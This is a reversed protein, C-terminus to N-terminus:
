QNMTFSPSTLLSWVIDEAVARRDKATALQSTWFQLHEDDPPRSFCIEYFQSVWETDDIAPDSTWRAVRGAANELRANLVPGVILALRGALSDDLDDACGVQECNKSGGRDAETANDTLTEVARIGPPFQGVPLWSDTVEAYADILIDASLHKADRYGYNAVVMNRQSQSPLNADAINTRQYTASSVIERVLYRLDFNHQRWREALSELLEPHSPPNSLRLDDVPHVLGRGMLHGWVRNVWARAIVMEGPGRMWQVLAPRPDIDDAIAQGDPLRAVAPEGTAPHINAAGPRWQITAGRRVGAFIAALGHYDDQTWVDLPHNHCNACGMKSGMFTESFRETQGRADSALLYFAVAPNEGIAGEALVMQSFLQPLPTGAKLERRLYHLVIDAQDPPMGPRVVASFRMQMALWHAWYDVMADSTLLRDIERSVKDVRRDIRFREAREANPLRGTLDLTLRRILTADDAAPGTPLHLQDLQRGVLEDIENRQRAGGAQTSEITEGAFSQSHDAALIEVTTVQDRLRVMVIHRGPGSVILNGPQETVSVLQPDHPSFIGWPTMERTEGDAFLGLVKVQIAQPQSVDIRLKNPKARVGVLQHRAANDGPKAGAAIWEVMTNWDAEGPELRAGGGHEMFEGAKRLLLSSEPDVVNVRRGGLARAIEIWDAAADQGYLSLRFGGRGVAAGHCAGANCGARTLIVMIQSDFDPDPEGAGASGVLM